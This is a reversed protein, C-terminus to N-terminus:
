YKKGEQLMKLLFLPLKMMRGIRTPQTILRYFWELHLRIFIKPARKVVGAMVDFSGGVGAFVKAEISEQYKSIFQEQRPAGLGVLVFDPKKQNIDEIVKEQEKEYGDWFGVIKLGPYKEKMKQAALEAVGPKAGYFYITKETKAMKLFMNQVLDYGAVREKLPRGILKAGIIVGIGDPVVLSGQNLNEQLIKNEYAAMVIEPNPTFITGKSEKDFLGLAIQIAESMNVQDFWVGLINIRKRKETTSM